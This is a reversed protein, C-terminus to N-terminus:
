SRGGGLLRRWWSTKPASLGAASKELRRAIDPPVVTQGADYRLLEDASAFERAAPTQAQHTQQQEESLRSRHKM